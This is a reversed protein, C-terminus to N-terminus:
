TFNKLLKEKMENNLSLDKNHIGIWEINKVGFKKYFKIEKNCIKCKNDYYIKM